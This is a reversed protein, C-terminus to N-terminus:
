KLGEIRMTGKLRSKRLGRIELVLNTMNLLNLQQSAASKDKGGVRSFM